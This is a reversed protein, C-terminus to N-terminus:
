EQHRFCTLPGMHGPFYGHAEATDEAGIAQSAARVEIEEAHLLNTLREEEARRAAEAMQHAKVAEYARCKVGENQHQEAPRRDCNDPPFDCAHGPSLAPNAPCLSCRDAVRGRRRRRPRTSMRGRSSRSRM